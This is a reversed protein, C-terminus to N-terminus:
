ARPVQRLLASDLYEALAVPLETVRDAMLVAGGPDPQQRGGVRVGPRHRAHVGAHVGVPRAPAHGKPDHVDGSTPTTGLQVTVPHFPALIGAYCGQRVSGTAEFARSSRQAESDVRHQLDVTEGSGPPLQQRAPSGSTASRRSPAHGDAQRQLEADVRGRQETRPRQAQRRVDRHQPRPRAARAAAARRHVGADHPLHRDLEVAGGGPRRRLRLQQPQALSRLFQMDTGQRRMEPPQSAPRLRRTRSRPPPSRRTTASSGSRRDRLGQARRSVLRGSADRNLLASDDHVIVTVVSQGPASRRDSDFGVIPGDILPQFDGEGLRLEVRIRHLIQMFPEDDGVWNGQDDLCVSVELRAQWPRDADQEVTITEFRELQEKTAATGDFLLKYEAGSM